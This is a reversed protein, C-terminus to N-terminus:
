QQKRRPPTPGRRQPAQQQYRSVHYYTTLPQQYCVSSTATVRPANDPMRYVSAFSPAPRANNRGLAIVQQQTCIHPVPSGMYVSKPRSQIGVFPRHGWSDARMQSIRSSQSPHYKLLLQMPFAHTRVFVIWSLAFSLSTILPQRLRINDSSFNGSINLGSVENIRDKIFIITM